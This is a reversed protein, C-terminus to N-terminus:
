MTNRISTAPVIRPGPEDPLDGNEGLNSNNLFYIFIM